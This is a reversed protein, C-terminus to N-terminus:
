FFQFNLLIIVDGINNVVTVTKYQSNFIKFIISLYDSFDEISISNQLLSFSFIFTRMIRLKISAEESDKSIYKKIKLNKKTHYVMNKIFHSACVYAMMPMESNLFKRRESKFVIDFCWSLYQNITCNNFIELNSNIIAWSQETIFVKAFPM